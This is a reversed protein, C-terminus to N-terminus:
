ACVWFHDVYSVAQPDLRTQEEGNEEFTIGNIKLFVFLPQLLVCGWARNNGVSYWVAVMYRREIDSM